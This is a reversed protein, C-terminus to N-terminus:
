IKLSKAWAGVLPLEKEKGQFVNVIGIIALIFLGLHVLRVLGWVPWLFPQLAWIILEIIFLAAGQKVHFKVFPNERGLLYALVISPGLYALLALLTRNQSHTPHHEM